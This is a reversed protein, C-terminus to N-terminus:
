YLQKERRKVALQKVKHQKWREAKSLTQTPTEVPAEPILTERVTEGLIKLDNEFKLEAEKLQDKLESISESYIAGWEFKGNAVSLSITYFAEKEMDIKESLKNKLEELNFSPSPTEEGEDELEANELEEEAEEETEEEAEPEMIETIVGGETTIKTGDELTHEGDPAPAPDEGEVVVTVAAGVELAEYEIVTGDELTSQALEVEVSDEKEKGFLTNLIKDLRSHYPARIDESNKSM